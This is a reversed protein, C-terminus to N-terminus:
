VAQGIGIGLGDVVMTNAALDFPRGYDLGIKALLVM